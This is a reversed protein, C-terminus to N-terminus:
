KQELESTNRESTGGNHKHWFICTCKEHTLKASDHDEENNQNKEINKGRERETEIEIGCCRIRIIKKKIKETLNDADFNVKFRM